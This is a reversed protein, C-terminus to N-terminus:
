EKFEFVIENERVFGLVDRITKEQHYPDQELAYLETQLKSKENELAKVRFSLDRRARALKFAQIIGSSGLLGSIGLCWCVFLSGFVIWRRKSAQSIQNTTTASIRSSGDM